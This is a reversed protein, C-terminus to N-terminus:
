HISKQMEKTTEYSANRFLKNDSHTGCIVKINTAFLFSQQQNNSLERRM